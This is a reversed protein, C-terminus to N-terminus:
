QCPNAKTRRDRDADGNKVIHKETDLDIELDSEGSCAQLHLTEEIINNYHFSNRVSNLYNQAVQSHSSAQPYVQLNM